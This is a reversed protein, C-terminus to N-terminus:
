PQETTRNTPTLRTGCPVRPNFGIEHDPPMNYHWDRGVRSARISVDSSVLDFRIQDM